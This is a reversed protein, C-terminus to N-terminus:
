AVGGLPKVTPELAVNVARTFVPMNVGVPETVNMSPAVFRPVPVTEAAVAVFRNGKEASKV